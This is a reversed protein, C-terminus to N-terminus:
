HGMFLGVFARHDWAFLLDKRASSGGISALRDRGHPPKAIAKSFIRRCASAEGVKGAKDGVRCAFKAEVEERQEIMCTEAVTGAGQDADVIIGVGPNALPEIAAIDGIIGHVKRAPPGVAAEGPLGKGRKNRELRTVPSNKLPTAKEPEAVPEGHGGIDNAFRGSGAREGHASPAFHRCGPKAARLENASM